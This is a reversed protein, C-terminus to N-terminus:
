PLNISDAWIHLLDRDINYFFDKSTDEVYLNKPEDLRRMWRFGWRPQYDKYENPDVREGAVIRLVYNSDEIETRAMRQLIWKLLNNPTCRLQFCFIFFAYHPYLLKGMWLPSDKTTLMRLLRNWLLSVGLIPISILQWAIYHRRLFLWLDPTLVHRKSLRWPASLAPTFEYGRLRLAATAMAIQDRSFTEQAWAYLNGKEYDWEDIRWPFRLFKYQPEEPVYCSYLGAIFRADDYTLLALATSVWADGYADGSWPKPNVLMNRTVVMM